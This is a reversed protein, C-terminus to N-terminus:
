QPVEHLVPLVLQLPGPLDVLVSDILDLRQDCGAVELLLQAFNYGFKVLNGVGSVTIHRSTNDLYINYIIGLRFIELYELSM